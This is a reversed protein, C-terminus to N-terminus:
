ASLPLLFCSAYASLKGSETKKSEAKQNGSEVKQKGSKSKSVSKVLAKQKHKGSISEAEV